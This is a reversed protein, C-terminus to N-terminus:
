SQGFPTIEWVSEAEPLMMLQEPNIKGLLFVGQRGSSEHLHRLAPYAEASTERWTCWVLETRATPAQSGVTLAANQNVSIPSTLQSPRYGEIGRDPSPPLSTSRPKRAASREEM